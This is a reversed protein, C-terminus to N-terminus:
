KKERSGASRIRVYTAFLVRVDFVNRKGRQVTVDLEKIRNAGGAEELRDLFASLAPGEVGRIRVESYYVRREGKVVRAPYQRVEPVATVDAERAMRKFRGQLLPGERPSRSGGGERELRRIKDLWARTKKFATRERPIAENRLANIRSIYLNVAIMEGALLLCLGVFIWPPYSRRMFGEECGSVPFL